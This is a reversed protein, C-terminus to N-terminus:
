AWLGTPQEIFREQAARTESPNSSRAKESRLFARPLQVPPQPRLRLARRHDQLPAAGAGRCADRRLFPQPALERERRRSLQRESRRTDGGRARPEPLEERLAGLTKTLGRQELFTKIFNLDDM